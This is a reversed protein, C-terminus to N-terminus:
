LDCCALIDAIAKAAKPDEKRPSQSLARIAASRVEIDTSSKAIDILRDTADPDRRAAIASVLSLRMSRSDADQLLRYLDAVPATTRVRSVAAERVAYPEAQNRAVALLFQQAEETNMKAIAFVVARRLDDSELKTYLTRWYEASVTNRQALSSIASMRIREAVDKREILTRVAAQARPNDSRAMTSAAEAQLSESTSTRLFDELAAYAADNSMRGLVRVAELQTERDTESKAVQGLLAVSEASNNRAVLSLAQRRVPAMCQDKTALVTRLVPIAAQQDMQALASLAEIKVNREERDCINQGRNAAQKVREAAEADGQRAMAGNVRAILEPIDQARNANSCKVSTTELVRYAARLDNPTGLRYRAHSEWYAADCFYRSTPYKTRLESYREAAQRYETRNLYAYAVRYLSDAPDNQYFQLGQQGITYGNVRMPTIYRYVSQGSPEPTIHTRVQPTPNQTATLTAPALVTLFLLFNRKM